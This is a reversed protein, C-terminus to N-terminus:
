SVACNGLCTAPWKQIYNIKCFFTFTIRISKFKPTNLQWHSSQHIPFLRRRSTLATFLHVSHRRVGFHCIYRHGLSLMSCSPPTNWHNPQQDKAAPPSEMMGQARDITSM